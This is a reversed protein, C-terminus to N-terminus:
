NSRPATGADPTPTFLTDKLMPSDEFSVPKRDLMPVDYKGGKWGLTVSWPADIKIVEIEDITAGLPIRRTSNYSDAFYVAGGAVGVIAPGGYFAPVVPVPDPPLLPPHFPSRKVVKEAASAIRDGFERERATVKGASLPEVAPPAPAAFLSLVPVYVLVLILLTTLIVGGAIASYASPPLPPRVPAAPPLTTPAASM